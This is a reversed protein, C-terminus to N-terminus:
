FFLNESVKGTMAEFALTRFPFINYLYFSLAKRVMCDLPAFTNSWERLMFDLLDASLMM